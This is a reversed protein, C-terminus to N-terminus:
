KEESEKTITDNSTDYEPYYEEIKYNYSRYTNIPCKLPNCVGLENSMHDCDAPYGEDPILYYKCDEVFIHITRTDKVTHRSSPNEGNQNQNM